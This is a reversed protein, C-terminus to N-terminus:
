PRTSTSRGGGPRGRSTGCARCRAEAPSTRRARASGRRACLRSPTLTPSRWTRSRRRARKRQRREREPLRRRLGRRRGQALRGCGPERVLGVEDRERRGLREVRRVDRDRLVPPEHGAEADRGRATVGAARDQEDVRRVAHLARRNLVRHGRGARKEAFALLVQWNRDDHEAGVVADQRVERRVLRLQGLRDRLRRLGGLVGVDVVRQDAGDVLRLVLAEFPRGDHEERVPGVAAALAERASASCAAASALTRTM